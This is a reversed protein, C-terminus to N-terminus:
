GLVERTGAMFHVGARIITIVTDVDAEDRPAYILLYTVPVSIPLIPNLDAGSFPFRQGWGREIVKKCDAPHLVVHVSGDLGAHVHSIEGRTQQAVAHEVLGKEEAEQGLQTFRDIFTQRQEATPLQDLQRQPPCDALLYGPENAFPLQEDDCPAQSLNHPLGGPGYSLWTRYDRFAIPLLVAIGVTSLVATPHFRLLRQLQRPDSM